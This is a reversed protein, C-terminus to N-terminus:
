YSSILKNTIYERIESRSKQLLDSPVENNVQNWILALQHKISYAGYFATKYQILTVTNQTAHRNNHQHTNRMQIFFEQLPPITSQTIIDRVFLCNLLKIYDAIKLIKNTKYLENVNYENNKFNVIRLAKNQLPELKRLTTNNQGWIQCSYILHSHFITSYLTNLLFKPVYRRTKSLIGIARNLKCKLSNIHLNWDLHEELIVGLYRVKSCTNIEQGSIIFNLHKTIQKLKPGFIIIETKSTNLCIKNAQLWRCILALDQNVQKNIKKLSKETLLLNTDDAYHHVKSNKVSKNM